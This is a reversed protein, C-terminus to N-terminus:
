PRCVLIVRAAGPFHQRVFDPLCRASLDPLSRIKVPLFWSRCLLFMVPAARPFLFSVARKPSRLSFPFKVWSGGAIASVRSPALRALGFPQGTAARASRCPARQSGCSLHSPFCSESLLACSPSLRRVSVVLFFFILVPVSYCSSYLLISIFIV